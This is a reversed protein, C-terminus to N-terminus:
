WSGEEITIANFKSFENNDITYSSNYGNIWYYDYVGEVSLIVRGLYSELVDEGVGLSSIYSSLESRLATSVANFDYGDKVMVVIGLSVRVSLAASVLVNVNLERQENLLRQVDAVLAPSAEENYGSIYVDVTGAGRGRPTVCASKVGEVSEALKKYYAANTGNSVSIYTNLVRKRLSEDSEADSGGSIRSSNTVSDVGIVNTIIVDVTQAAVNGEFGATEAICPVTVSLVGAALTAARTTAFTVCVDGSTGVITGQPINIADERVASISFTVKGRAKIAKNRSIGRDEAHMDLYEGTATSAFMQRKVFDLNVESDFIEGALVKMRIDIDSGEPVDRGSLETYKEKMGSLISDYSEM